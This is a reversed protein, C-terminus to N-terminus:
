PPAGCACPPSRNQEASVAVVLIEDGDDFTGMTSSADVVADRGAVVWAQNPPLGFALCLVRQYYRVTFRSNAVFRVPTRSRSKFVVEVAHENCLSRLAMSDCTHTSAARPLAALRLVAREAVAGELADVTDVPTPPGDDPADRYLDFRNWCLGELAECGEVARKVVDYVCEGFALEGQATGGDPLAIVCRVRRSVVALVDRAVSCAACTPPVM